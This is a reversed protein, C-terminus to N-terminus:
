PLAEEISCTLLFGEFGCRLLRTEGESDRAEVWLEELRQDPSSRTTWPGASLMTWGPLGSALFRPRLHGGELRYVFLSRQGTAPALVELVVNQSRGDELHATFGSRVCLAKPMALRRYALREGSRHLLVRCCGSECDRLLLRAGVAPRAAAASAVFALLQLVLAPGISLRLFWLAARDCGFFVDGRARTAASGRATLQCDVASLESGSESPRCTAGCWFDDRRAFFSSALLDV